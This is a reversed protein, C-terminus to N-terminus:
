RAIDEQAPNSILKGDFSFRSGHCPCDWTLEDPNWELQCGLHPCRIDVTHIDGEEDRYVGVKEGELTVIAGQGAPIDEATQDPLQFLQKGLGKVAHGSECVIGSIAEGSLRGSSFIEAFPNGIGCIMDRLIMAAAMSSTMGWKHFGTAVYWDPKGASYQGIYPVRDPTICDQASWCATERCHPFFQRAKARLAEYRGGERNEGTRHNEGGFILYEGYNRFSYKVKGEGIFMGDLDAADKLALVYSREQHMRTFYMGPFNIFPFHCAFVVNRARVIGKDTTLVQVKREEDDSTEEEEVKLVRTKEYITLDETLYKLFKLPHFQAQNTFKVAGATPFPLPVETVYSAPLGLRRAAEAEEQLVGEDEGYVYACTEEFDCQIDQEQIISKYERIARENAQAYQRAKEEGFSQILGAYILGHQSTIKATTNQTQGGAIREAELIVTQKGSKKLMYAILIGAMGAGVVAIDTDINGKLPEREKISCSKSWISEM